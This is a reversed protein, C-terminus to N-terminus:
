RMWKRAIVAVILAMFVAGTLAELASLAKLWGTPHMDGYGLTTFTVLSYYLQNLIDTVPKGTSELIKGLSLWNTLINYLIASWIIVNASALLTKKWNTGYESVGDALIKEVQVNIWTGLYNLIAKTKNKLGKANAFNEKAQTMRLKRKARMELVFMRDAEDRKGEKEFSLRQVRLAEIISQLNSFRSSFFEWLKSLNTENKLNGLFDAGQRFDCNAFSLEDHFKPAPEELTLNEDVFVSLREFVSGEFTTKSKFEAGQFEVAKKFEVEKFQTENYFKVNKFSAEKEFVAFNFFVERFKSFDFSANDRFISKVFSTEKGLFKSKLVNISREFTCHMFNTDGRFETEIFESEATFTVGNFLAGGRFIAERFIVRGHVLEFGVKSLESTGIQIKFIANKFWVPKSFETKLFLAYKGVFNAGIFVTKGKFQTNQFVVGKFQTEGFYVKRKFIVNKFVVPSIKWIMEYPTGDTGVPIALSYNGSFKVGNFSTIRNFLVDEFLVKEKFEAFDFLASTNFVTKKFLVHGNFKAGNFNAGYAIEDIREFYLALMLNGLPDGPDKLLFDSIFTGDKGNFQARDFTLNKDFVTEYFVADGEFVAEEFSVNEKFLAYRFPFEGKWTVNGKPDKYEVETTKPFVFGRADISKEFVLRKVKKGNVEIEEVRPKFRELFKRYFEVAEEESKNPKHFICYEQDATEPDCNGFHAMKCM